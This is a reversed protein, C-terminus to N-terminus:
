PGADDCLCFTSVARAFACSDNSFPLRAAKPVASFISPAANAVIAPCGVNILMSIDNDADGMAFVADPSCHLQNLLLRLGTWKSVSAPSFELYKPLTYYCHLAPTNPTEDVTGHPWIVFCSSIVGCLTSVQENDPCIVAVKFCPEALLAAVNPLVQLPGERYREAVTTTFDNSELCNLVGNDCYTVINNLLGLRELCAVLKAVVESQMFHREIVTGDLGVVQMGNLFVGPVGNEYNMDNLVKQGLLTKVSQWSRGTAIMVIYGAIKAKRFAMINEALSCEESSLFTGDLDTVIVRIRSVWERRREECKDESNLDPWMACIEPLKKQLDTLPTDRCLKGEEIDKLAMEAQQWKDISQQVDKETKIQVSSPIEEIDDNEIQNDNDNERPQEETTMKRSCEDEPVVEEMM